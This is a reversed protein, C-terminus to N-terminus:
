GGAIKFIKVCTYIAFGACGSIIGVLIGLSLGQIIFNIGDNM